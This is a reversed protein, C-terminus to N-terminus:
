NNRLNKSDVMRVIRGLRRNDIKAILEERLQEYRVIAATVTASDRFINNVKVQGDDFSYSQVDEGDAMRIATDYLAAIVQDIKVIKDEYNTTSTVYRSVSEYYAM